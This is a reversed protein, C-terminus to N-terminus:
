FSLINQFSALRIATQIRNQIELCRSLDLNEVGLLAKLAEIEEGIKKHNLEIERIIEATPPYEKAVYEIEKYKNISLDYDNEVIEGKDVFFSQQKRDRAKEAELNHFREIIDPIDNEAVPQRQRKYM